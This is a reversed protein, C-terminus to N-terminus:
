TASANQSQLLRHTLRRAGCHISVAGAAESQSRRVEVALESHIAESLREAFGPEDYAGASRACGANEWGHVNYHQNGATQIMVTPLRCAVAEAVTQGAATVLLDLHDFLSKIEVAALRGTAQVGTANRMSTKEVGIAYITASQPVTAQVVPLVDGMLGQHDTGGLMVGVTEIRDRVVRDNPTWFPRRVVQYDTGLILELGPRHPYPILHAGPSGNIVVGQQPINTGTDDFYVPRGAHTQITRRVEPSMEYADIIVLDATAVAEAAVQGNHAWNSLTWETEPPHAAVWEGGRRSDVILTANNGAGRMAGALADCRYLHGLGIAPDAVTLFVVNASM